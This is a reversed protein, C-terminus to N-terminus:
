LYWVGYPNDLPKVSVTFYKKFNVLWTVGRGWVRQSGM